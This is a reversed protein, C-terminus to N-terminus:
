DSFHLLQLRFSKSFPQVKIILMSCDHIFHVWQAYEACHSVNCNGFPCEESVISIALISETFFVSFLTLFEFKKLSAIYFVSFLTLCECNKLSMRILVFFTGSIFGNNFFVSFMVLCESNKLSIRKRPNSSDEM